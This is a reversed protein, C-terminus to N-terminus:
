GQNGTVLRLLSKRGSLEHIREMKELGTIVFSHTGVTVRVLGNGYGGLSKELELGAGPFEM